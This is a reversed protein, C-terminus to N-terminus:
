ACHQNLRASIREQGSGMRVAKEGPRASPPHAPETLLFTTGAAAGNSRAEFSYLKRVNETLSKQVFCNVAPSKRGNGLCRAKPRSLAANTQRKKEACNFRARRNSFWRLM